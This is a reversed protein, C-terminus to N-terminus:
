LQRIAAIIRATSVLRDPQSLHERRVFLEGVFEIFEFALISVV